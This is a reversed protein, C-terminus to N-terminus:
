YWTNKRLNFSIGFTIEHKDFNKDVDMFSVGGNINVVRNLRLMLGGTAVTYGVKEVSKIGSNVDVSLINYFGYGGGLNLYLWKFIKINPGLEGETRNVASTENLVDMEPTLTSRATMRFGITKGGVEYILGYKAIEGSQFGLSAFSKLRRKEKKEAILRQKKAEVALLQDRRAQEERNKANEIETLRDREIQEQRDKEAQVRDLEQQVRLTEM